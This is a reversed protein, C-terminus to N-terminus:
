NKCIIDVLDNIIRGYKSYPKICHFDTYINSALDNKVKNLNALIYNRERKDLRSFKIDKDILLVFKDKNNEKWKMVYEYLKQQDTFWGICNKTGTYQNNYWKNITNSIDDINNISFIKRWVNSNAVNYCISLMNQKIYKERYSIFSDNSINEISKIFYNNSIPFIDVDTILIYKDEYLCPYLIRIVQAIFISNVNPLPKFLIINAGINKLYDPIIDGILILICDLNFKEKWVKVILPYLKLYHDSINCATLVFDIKM